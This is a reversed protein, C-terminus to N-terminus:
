KRPLPPAAVKPHGVLIPALVRSQRPLGLANHGEETNLWGQAFGIWCSGLNQDLAALMLNQAALACDEAGWPGDGPVSIVILTPAHYFIHFHPDALIDRFHSSRPMAAVGKLM